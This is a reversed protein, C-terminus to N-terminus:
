LEGLLRGMRLAMRARQDPSARRMAEAAAAKAEPHRGLAFLAEAQIMLLLAAANTKTGLSPTVVDLADGHRGVGLLQEALFYRQIAVEIPDPDGVSEGIAADLASRSQAVAEDKRGLKWLIAAYEGHHMSHALEGPALARLAEAYKDAGASLDGREFALRYGESLLGLYQDRDV